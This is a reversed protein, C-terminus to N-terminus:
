SPEPGPEGPGHGTVHAQAEDLRDMTFSQGCHCVVSVGVVGSPSWELAPRTDDTLTM